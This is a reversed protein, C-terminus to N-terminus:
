LAESDKWYLTNKKQLKASIREEKGWHNNTRKVKNGLVNKTENGSVNEFTM